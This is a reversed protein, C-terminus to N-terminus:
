LAFAEFCPVEINDFLEVVSTDVPLVLNIKGNQVKKDRTMIQKFNKYKRNNFNLKANCLNLKDTLNLAYNYYEVSILKNLLATKFAMKIGYAVAQGHSILKYNSLLELPHAFTHGFNLIKRLGSEKFDRSVVCAKLKACIQVLYDMDLNNYNKDLYGSLNYFEDYKCSKEIFAYKLIEGMGCKLEKDNLTNLFNTDILVQNAFYFSGALNKGYKTDIGTKGGISSDCMALLTTPIQIFNVGRLVSSACFGALDGVVGGGLAAIVDKREIKEKLLRDLIYNYTSFNKYKEGDKIITVREKKFKSIIQPYLNKLVDNTILFSSNVDLYNEIHNIIDCNFVIKSSVVQKNSIEISDM